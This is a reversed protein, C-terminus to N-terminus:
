PRPTSGHMSGVILLIAESCALGVISVYFFTVHQHIIEVGVWICGDAVVGTVHYEFKYRISGEEDEWCGAAACGRLM